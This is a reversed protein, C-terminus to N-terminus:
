SRAKTTVGACLRGQAFGFPRSDLQPEAKRPGHRRLPSLLLCCWARRKNRHRTSCSSTSSRYHKELKNKLGVLKSYATKNKKALTEISEPTRIGAVVDEGQANMLYEGYFKNEGTSPNRSFCVGTGSTEGMNGFVMAQINVATGLLGKIDNLRRYTIARDNNWSEFVANISKVLQQWPDDPFNENTHKKYAAKYRAVIDKLDETSLDTDLKASVGRKKEELIHEFTEHPVGMVVDGFMQIFRRYGDWAFRTNGTKATLGAIVTENLGLNLITDMMGPMSARAGSRVSLLLPSAADGFRKGTDTELAALADGVQADVGDPYGEHSSYYNCVETTITFGPPVPLGISTMEALNAGKGGLLERMEKNGESFRYVHKHAM